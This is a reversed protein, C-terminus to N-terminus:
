SVKPCWRGCRPECPWCESPIGTDPVAEAGGGAGDLRDALGRRRNCSAHSAGFNTPDLARSPNVEVPEVHDLEWAMPSGHKATYDVEGGCIWCPARAAVCKRRFADRLVRYDHRQHTDIDRRAKGPWQSEPLDDYPDV